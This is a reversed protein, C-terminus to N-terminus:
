FNVPGEAPPTPIEKPKLPDEEILDSLKKILNKAEYENFQYVWNATTQAFKIAKEKALLKAEKQKLQEQSEVESGKTVPTTDTFQASCTMYYKDELKAIKFEYLSSDKLKCEYTSDFTLKNKISDLLMVDQFRLNQLTNFVDRCDSDKAKKGQPIQTLLPDSSNPDDKLTYQGDPSSVTVSDIKDTSIAILERNVFDIARNAPWTHSLAVYVNEDGVRRVFSGSGGQKASGFIVGTILSGDQKFFKVINPAQKEDVGLDNYNKPNKTFPQDVQVSLCNTIVRNIIGTDAPYNDKNEVVFIGNSRKLTVPEDASGLVISAIEATDLGQILNTPAASVTLPKNAIRSQIVALVVMIIAIIGLITVKKNTM